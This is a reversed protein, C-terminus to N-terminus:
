ARQPQEAALPLLLTFRAGPGDRNNDALLAGSCTEILRACVALGLGAFPRDTDALDCSVFPEFLRPLLAEPVGPGTDRVTLAACPADQPPATTPLCRCPADAATLAASWTSREGEVLLEGGRGRMAQLANLLLNLLIQRLIPKAIRVRLDDPLRRRLQVNDRAPDRVMCALAEGLADRVLCSQEQPSEKWSLLGEGAIQLISHSLRRGRDVICRAADLAKATLADDDPHDDLLQLVGALPTLINNFEHALGGALAGLASLQSAGQLQRELLKVRQEMRRLRLLMRDQDHQSVADPAMSASGTPREM